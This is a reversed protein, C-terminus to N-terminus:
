GARALVTQLTATWATVVDEVGKRYFEPIRIWWRSSSSVLRGPIHVFKRRLGKAFLPRKRNHLLAVTRFLNHAVMGLLGYAHNAHLKQMPFHLFDYAWKEERIFNECNARKQHFEVLNQLKLHFLNWNTVIGYNKWVDNGKKDKVLTRKVVVYFRLNSSWGPKYVMSGLEITPLKVNQESAKKIEELPYEWPVWQTVAGAKVKDEWTSNRHATITFSAGARLCALICKKNHYASDARLYKKDGHKLHNFVKEILEPAGQASFTGGRRLEMGHCYGLEDWASLSDICQSFRLM